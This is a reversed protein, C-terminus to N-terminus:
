KSLAKAQKVFIIFRNSHSITNESCSLYPMRSHREGGLKIMEAETVQNTKIFCNGKSDVLGFMKDEYMLGSGGFMKKTSIGSIGALKSVVLASIENSYATNKETLLAM